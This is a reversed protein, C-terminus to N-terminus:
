VFHKEIVGVPVRPTFEISSPDTSNILSNRTVPHLLRAKDPWTKGRGPFFFSFFFSSYTHRVVTQSDYELNM